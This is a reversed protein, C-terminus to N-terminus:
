SYKNPSDRLISHKNIELISVKFVVYFIYDVFMYTKTNIFFPILLDTEYHEQLILLVDTM